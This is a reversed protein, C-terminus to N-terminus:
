RRVYIREGAPIAITLRNQPPPLPCTTYPNYACPPNYARNFDLMVRGRADPPDTYLFRIRYTESGGLADSFIIWLHRGSQAAQLRVEDGGHVFVVEGPVTLKEFDGSVNPVTITRPAAYPEFRAAINWETGVPYWKLGGFTERLRSNADRVRIGLRDGSPHLQLTLTGLALRDRLTLMTRERIPAGERSLEVGPAPDFWVGTHTRVIAGVLPPAPPPLVIDNAPDSGISNPGAELFTLGAVSLWGGDSRLNKEREARWTATAEADYAHPEPATRISLDHQPALAFLIVVFVIVRM